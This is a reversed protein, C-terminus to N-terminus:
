HNLNYLKAKNKKQHLSRRQHFIKNLELPLIDKLAAEFLQQLIKRYLIEKM